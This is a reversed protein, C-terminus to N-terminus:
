RVKKAYLPDKSQKLLTSVPRHLVPHIFDGAIEALPMLVFNRETIRPHPITLTETHHIEHNFFLIDIDMIRAGYKELRIRGMAKEIKNIVALVGSATLHTHVLIVQNYFSPQNALGWPETEYVPSSKIVTGMDKEILATATNLNEMRNGLNTGTILYTENVKNKM